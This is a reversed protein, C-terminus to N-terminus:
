FALDYGALLSSIRWVGDAGRQMRVEYFGCTVPVIAETTVSVLLHYTYITASDESQETVLSNMIMHRRQDRQADWFSSMYEVVADRGVFPGIITENRINAVWTADATFCEALLEPQREDFSWAYRAMRDSLVARLNQNESTAPQGVKIDILGSRHAWAPATTVKSV